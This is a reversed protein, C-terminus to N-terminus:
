DSGFDELFFCTKFWNGEYTCCYIDGNFSFARYGATTAVLMVNEVSGHELKPTFVKRIGKTYTM